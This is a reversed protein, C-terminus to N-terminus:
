LWLRVPASGAVQPLSDAPLHLEDGPYMKYMNLNEAMRKDDKKGHVYATGFVM